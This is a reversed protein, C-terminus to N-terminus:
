ALGGTPWRDGSTGGLSGSISRIRAPTAGRHRWSSGGPPLSLGRTGSDPKLFDARPGVLAAKAWIGGTGALGFHGPQIRRVFRRDVGDQVRGLPGELGDFALERLLAERVGLGVDQAEGLIAQGARPM